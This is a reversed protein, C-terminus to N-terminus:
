DDKNGRGYKLKFWVNFGFTAFGLIMGVVVGWENVTLGSVVTLGSAAYATKTAAREVQDIVTESSLWYHLKVSLQNLWERM